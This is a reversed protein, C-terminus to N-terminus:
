NTMGNVKITHMDQAAKQIAGSTNTNGNPTINNLTMPIQAKRAIRDGPETPIPWNITADDICIQGGAGQTSFTILGFPIRDGDKPDFVDAM